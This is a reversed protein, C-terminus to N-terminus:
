RCEPEIRAAAAAIPGELLEHRTLAALVRRTEPPCSSATTSALIKGGLTVYCAEAVRMWAQRSPRTNLSRLRRLTPECTPPVRLDAEDARDTAEAVVRAADRVLRVERCLREAAERDAESMQSTYELLLDCNDLHGRAAPDDRMATLTQTLAQVARQPIDRCRTALDGPDPERKLIDCESTLQRWDGAREAGEIRQRLNELRRDRRPVVLTKKAQDWCAFFADCSEHRGCAVLGKYDIPYRRCRRVFAEGGFDSDAGDGACEALRAGLVTCTASPEYTTDEARCGTLCTLSLACIVIRYAM